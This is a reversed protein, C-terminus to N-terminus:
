FLSLPPTSPLPLVTADLVPEKTTQSLSLYFFLSLALSVPNLGGIYGIILKATFLSLSLSLLHPTDPHLPRPLPPLM